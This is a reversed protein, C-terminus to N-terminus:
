HAGPARAAGPRQRSLGRPQGQQHHATGRGSTPHGASPAQGHPTEVAAMGAEDSAPRGRTHGASVRCTATDCEARTGAAGQPFASSTADPIGAAQCLGGSTGSAGTQPGRGTNGAHPECLCGAERPPARAPVARASAKSAPGQRRRVAEGPATEPWGQSDPSAAAAGAGTRQHAPCQQGRQGKNTTQTRKTDAPARGEIEWCGWFSFM